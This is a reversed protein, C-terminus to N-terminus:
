WFIMSLLPASPRYAKRVVPAGLCRVKANLRREGCALRAREEKVGIQPVQSRRVDPRIYPHADRPVPTPSAVKDERPVPTLSSM